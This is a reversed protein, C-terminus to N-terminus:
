QYLSPHNHPISRMMPVGWATVAGADLSTFKFLFELFSAIMERLPHQNIQM